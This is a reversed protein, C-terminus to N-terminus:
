SVARPASSVSMVIIYIHLHRDVCIDPSGILLHLGTKWDHICFTLIYWKLRKSASIYKVPKKIIWVIDKPHPILSQLSYIFLCQYYCCSDWLNTSYTIIDSLM